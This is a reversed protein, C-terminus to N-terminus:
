KKIKRCMGYNDTKQTYKAIEDCIYKSDNKGTSPNYEGWTEVPIGNAILTDTFFDATGVCFYEVTFKYEEDIEEALYRTPVFLDNILIGHNKSIYLDETAGCYGKRIIRPQSDKDPVFYFIGIQTIQIHRDDHTVVIDNVKLDQILVYGTPTLIKTNRCICALDNATIVNLNALSNVAFDYSPM